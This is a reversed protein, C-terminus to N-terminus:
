KKMLHMKIFMGPTKMAPGPVEDVVSRGRCRTQSVGDQCKTRSVKDVVSRGRCRTWSVGDRCKTRSVEDVVSRGRCRTRSVGDGVIIGYYATEKILGRLILIELKKKNSCSFKLSQYLVISSTLFCSSFLRSDKGKLISM